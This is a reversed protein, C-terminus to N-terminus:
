RLAIPAVAGGAKENGQQYAIEYLRGVLTTKEPLSNEFDDFRFLQM